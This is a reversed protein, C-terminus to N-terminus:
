VPRAQGPKRSLAPGPLRPGIFIPRVQGPGSRLCDLWAQGPKQSSALGPVDSIKAWCKAGFVRLHGVSQRKGTLSELPIRKLHRRSPILNRTYISHVAAEAWYSHSLDSDRLLTHVDEMTTRIAREALGNQSSSYPATM